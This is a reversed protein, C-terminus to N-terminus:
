EKLLYFHNISNTASPDIFQFHDPGDPIPHGLSQWASVPAAANTSTLVTFNTGDPGDFEFQFGTALKQLRTLLPRPGLILISGPSATAPVDNNDVLTRAEPNPGTPADPPTAPFLQPHAGPAANVPVSYGLNLAPGNGIPPDTLVFATVRCVGNSFDDVFCNIQPQSSDATVTPLPWGPANTVYFAFASLNTPAQALTVPIQVTNGPLTRGTGLSINLALAERQGLLLVTIAAVSFWRLRAKPLTMM